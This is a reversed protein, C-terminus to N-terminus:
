VSIIYMDLIPYVDCRWKFGLCARGLQKTIRLVKGCCLGRKFIMSLLMAHPLQRHATGSLFGRYRVLAEAASVPPRAAPVAPAPGQGGRQVGARVQNPQNQM